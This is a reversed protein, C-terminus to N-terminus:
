CHIRRHLSLSLLSRVYECRCELGYPCANSKRKRSMVAFPFMISKELPYNFSRSSGSMFGLPIFCNNCLRQFFIGEATVMSNSLFNFIEERWGFCDEELLLYTCVHVSPSRRSLFGFCYFYCLFLAAM